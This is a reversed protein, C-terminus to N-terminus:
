AKFVVGKAGDKVKDLGVKAGDAVKKMGEKAGGAVHTVKKM